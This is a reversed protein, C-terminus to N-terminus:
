SPGGQNHPPSPIDLEIQTTLEYWETEPLTLYPAYPYVQRLRRFAEDYLYTRSSTVFLRIGNIIEITGTLPPYSDAHLYVSTHPNLQDYRM